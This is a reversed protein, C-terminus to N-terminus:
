LSPDLLPNHVTEFTLFKSNQMVGSSIPWLSCGSACTTSEGRHLTVTGGLPCGMTQASWEAGKRIGPPCRLRVGAREQMKLEERVNEFGCLATPGRTTVLLTVKRVWKERSGKVMFRGSIVKKSPSGM